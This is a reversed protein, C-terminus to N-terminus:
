EEKYNLRVNLAAALPGLSDYDPHYPNVAIECVHIMDDFLVKPVPVTGADGLLITEDSM